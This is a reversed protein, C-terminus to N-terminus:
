GLGKSMTYTETAYDKDFRFYKAESDNFDYTNLAALLDSYNTFSYYFYWYTYSSKTEYGVRYKFGDSLIDNWKVDHKMTTNKNVADKDVRFYSNISM